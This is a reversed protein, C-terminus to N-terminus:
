RRCSSAPALCIKRVPSCPTPTASPPLLILDAKRSPGLAPHCVLRYLPNRFATGAAAFMTQLLAAPTNGVVLLALWYALRTVGYYCHPKKDLPQGAGLSALSRSCVWHSVMTVAFQGIM